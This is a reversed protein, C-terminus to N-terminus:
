SQSWKSRFIIYFLGRLVLVTKRRMHTHLLSCVFREVILWLIEIAFCGATSPFFFFPLSLPYMLLLLFPCGQLDHPRESQESSRCPSSQLTLRTEQKHEVGNEESPTEVAGVCAM